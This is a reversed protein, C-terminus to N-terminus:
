RLLRARIRGSLDEAAERLVRDRLAPLSRALRASRVEVRACSTVVALMKGSDDSIMARLEATVAGTAGDDAVDIRVVSVDLRRGDLHFRRAESAVNTLRPTAGLAIGLTSRVLEANAKRAAVELTPASADIASAIAVYLEPRSAALTVRDERFAVRPAAAVDHSLAIIAITIIAARTMM